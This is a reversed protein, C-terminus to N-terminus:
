LMFVLIMDDRMMTGMLNVVNVKRGQPIGPFEKHGIAYNSVTEEPTFELGQLLGVLVQRNASATEPEIMWPERFIANLYSFRPMTSAKEAFIACGM